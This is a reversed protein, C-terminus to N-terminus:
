RKRQFMLWVRVGLPRLEGIVEYGRSSYFAVNAETATELYVGAIGPRAAAEFRLRDLLAVGYHRKQFDPDVGLTQLYLHPEKIRNKIFLDVLNLGRMLGAWGAARVMRRMQSLGTLAMGVMAPRLIGEAMAAGVVRGGDIVGFVPQGQRRGIAMMARFVETYREIRVDMAAIGPIMANMLPDNAFARGLAAVVQEDQEPFVVTVAPGSKESM